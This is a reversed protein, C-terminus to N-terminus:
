AAIKELTATGDNDNNSGRAISVHQRVFDAEFGMKEQWTTIMAQRAAAITSEDTAPHTQWQLQWKSDAQRSLRFTRYACPYLAVAPCALHLRPGLTDVKTCHHHGTLVIKVQPHTDLLNLLDPGNSCVFNQWDPHTDIPALPHLPHHVALIVLKGAHQALQNKLWTIQPADILGGWDDDIISDLGILQVSPAITQSWYGSQAAPPTPREDFQPNFHQAFQRHTLGESSTAARRDHNGPIVYYPKNLTQIIDQFTNFEAWDAQDFLDGTFLVFDLDEIRNLRALVGALFQPSQGSLLDHHDGLSSIHIDSIQAFHLSTM